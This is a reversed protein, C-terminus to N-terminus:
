PTEGCRYGFVAAPFEGHLLPDLIPKSWSDTLRDVWFMLAHEPYQMSLFIFHSLAVPNAFSSSPPWAPSPAPGLGLSLSQFHEERPEGFISEYGMVMYVDNCGMAAQESVSLLTYDHSGGSLVDQGVYAASYVRMRGPIDICDLLYDEPASASAGAQFLLVPQPRGCAGPTMLLTMARFLEAYMDQIRDVVSRSPSRGCDQEFDRVLGAREIGWSLHVFNVGYRLIAGAISSQVAAFREELRAWEAEAMDEDLLGCMDRFELKSESVVYQAEPVKEALFAQIDSGHGTWTEPLKTLFKEAFPLVLNLDYGSAPPSAEDVKKLIEYAEAPMDFSPTYESYFSDENTELFALTRSAYRTAAAFLIGDDIVLIRQGQSSARAVGPGAVVTTMPCSEPCSSEEIAHAIEEALRSMSTGGQGGFTSGTESGPVGAAGGQELSGAVGGTFDGDARSGQGGSGGGIGAGSLSGEGSYLSAGGCTAEICNSNGAFTDSSGADSSYESTTDPNGASGASSARHRASEGDGCGCLVLLIACFRRAVSSRGELVVGQMRVSDRRM